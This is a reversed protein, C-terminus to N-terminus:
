VATAMSWEYCNTITKKLPTQPSGACTSLEMPVDGINSAAVM